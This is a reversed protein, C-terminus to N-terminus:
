QKEPPASVPQCAAMNAIHDGDVDIARTETFYPTNLVLRPGLDDPTSVAVSFPDAHNGVVPRGCVYLMKKGCGSLEYTSTISDIDVGPPTPVGKLVSHPAVDSREKVTIVDHPCIQDAAYIRVAGDAVSPACATSALSVGLITVILALSGFRM